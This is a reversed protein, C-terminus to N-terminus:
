VAAAFLFQLIEQFVDTTCNRKSLTVPYHEQLLFETNEEYRKLKENLRGMRCLM